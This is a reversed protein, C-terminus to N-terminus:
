KNRHTSLYSYNTIKIWTFQLLRAIVLSCLLLFGEVGNKAKRM